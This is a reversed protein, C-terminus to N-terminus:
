KSNSQYFQEISKVYEEKQAVIFQLRTVRETILKNLDKREFPFLLNNVANFNGHANKLCVSCPGHKFSTQCYKLYSDCQEFVRKIFESPNNQWSITTNNYIDSFSYLHADEGAVNFVERIAKQHDKSLSNFWSSNYM